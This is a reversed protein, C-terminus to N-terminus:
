LDDLIAGFLRAETAGDRWAPRIYVDGILGKHDEVVSYGYGVVESRDILAFGALSRTDTFQRVLDASRAFDWDLDRQWEITEVLLTPDLERGVLHRLPVIEVPGAAQRLAGM